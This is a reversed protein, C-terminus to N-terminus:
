IGSRNPADRTTATIPGATAWVSTSCATPASAMQGGNHVNSPQEVSLVPTETAPDARNPDASVHFLLIQTNGQLDSFHVM